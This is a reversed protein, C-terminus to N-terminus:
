DVQHGEGTGSTLRGLLYLLQMQDAVSLPSFSAEFIAQAAKTARALVHQGEPTLRHVLARGTGHDRTVLNKAILRGALSGFSQDTQFTAEALAHSSVGPYNAIARLADWQALSTGLTRLVVDLNRHNQYQLKKVARGLSQEITAM